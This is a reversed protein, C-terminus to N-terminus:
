QENIAKKHDTVIIQKLGVLYDEESRLDKYYIKFNNRLPLPFISKGESNKKLKEYTELAPTHGIEIKIISIPKNYYDEYIPEDRVSGFNKSNWLAVIGDYTVSTRSLNLCNISSAKPNKALKKLHKDTLNKQYKLSLYKINEELHFKFFHNLEETSLDPRHGLCLTKSGHHHVDGFDCYDTAFAINQIFFYTLSGLIYLNIKILKNM